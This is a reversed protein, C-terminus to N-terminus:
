ERAVIALHQSSALALRHLTIHRIETRSAMIHAKLLMETSDAKRALLKELIKSHEDFAASIRQPDIFDLRRIIRIRETLNDFTRLMEQNGALEVLTRHFLEDERAVEKGDQIRQAKPVRWFAGVKLLEPTLDRKCLRHIAMVEISMRFDYLDEYYCLDLPKVQWSSHGDIRNLYGENALVHLAFRLPTRSVGFSCALAQESYRQGPPMRFEFIDDKIRQYLDEALRGKELGGRGSPHILQVPSEAPTRPKLKVSFESQSGLPSALRAMSFHCDWLHLSSTPPAVIAKLHLDSANLVHLQRHRRAAFFQGAGEIMSAEADGFGCLRRVKCFAAAAPKFPTIKLDMQPHFCLEPGRSFCMHREEDRAQARQRLREFGGAERQFLVFGELTIM